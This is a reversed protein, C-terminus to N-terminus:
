LLTDCHRITNNFPKALALTVTEDLLFAARIYKNMVGANVSGTELGQLFARLHGELNGLTIFTRRRRVYSDDALDSKGSVYVPGRPNEAPAQKAKLPRTITEKTVASM